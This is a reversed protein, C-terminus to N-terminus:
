AKHTSSVGKVGAKLFWPVYSLHKKPEYFSVAVAGTGAPADGPKAKHKLDFSAHLALNVTADHTDSHFSYKLSFPFVGDLLAAAGACSSAVVGGPTLLALLDDCGAKTVPSAGPRVKCDLVIMDYGRIHDESGSEALKRAAEPMSGHVWKVRPDTRHANVLLHKEAVGPLKEEDELVIVRTVSAYKLVERLALCDGGGVVIVRKPPAELYAIAFHVLMEHYKHEDAECFQVRGDLSVCKGMGM